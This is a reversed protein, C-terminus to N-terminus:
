TPSISVSDGGTAASRYCADVITHARVATNFDPFAPEDRLVAEVFAGDPNHHVPALRDVEATLARDQLSQVEAGSQWSIPGWWDNEIVFMTRECFVECRRTSPRELIDHWVTMLNGSAGGGFGFSVSAVDEIGPQAHIAGSRASLVEIGGSVWDIMDLDHISHELLVGSGALEVDARWTSAYSGQIPLYQDDRFTLGMLVGSEERGMLHVLLNYAPSRRMILGVQNIVGAAEVREAMAKAGALNTALPKECFIARGAMVAEGVLRPHESTWTCVYVADCGEIVEAESRAITAGTSQAFSAARSPDIDYVGSFVIESRCRQLSRAHFAAILGAGLFGVKLAM